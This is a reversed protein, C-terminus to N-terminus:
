VHSEPRKRYRKPLYPCAHLIALLKRTAFMLRYSQSVEVQLICGQGLAEKMPPSSAKICIVAFLRFTLGSYIFNDSYIYSILTSLSGTSGCCFCLEAAWVLCFSGSGWRDRPTVLLTVESVVQRQLFYM